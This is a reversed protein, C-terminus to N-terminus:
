KTVTASTSASQTPISDLIVKRKTTEKEISSHVKNLRDQATQLINTVITIRHKANILKKIYVDLDVSNKQSDAIKKLDENLSDILQKLELQSFRFITNRTFLFFTRKM